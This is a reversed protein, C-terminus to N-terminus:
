SSFYEEEATRSPVQEVIYDKVINKAPYLGGRHNEQPEKIGIEVNGSKNLCDLHTIMGEQYKNLIGIAQSFHRLKYGLAEILYDYITHEKGEKDWVRLKLEIMEKGTKSVKDTAFAVEFPYIGEELLNIRDLEEQTKPVFRM